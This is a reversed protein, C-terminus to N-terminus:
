EKPRPRMDGIYCVTEEFENVFSDVIQAEWQEKGVIQYKFTMDPYIRLRCTFSMSAMGKYPPTTFSFYEPLKGKGSKFELKDYNSQSKVHSEEVKTAESYKEVTLNSLASFAHKFSFREVVDEEKVSFFLINNEFDEIFELMSIQSMKKNNNLELYTYQGTKLMTLTAKHESWLPKDPVGLDFIATAELNSSNVFLATDKNTHHHYYNLFDALSTTSFHARFRLPAPLFREISTLNQNDPLIIAPLEKDLIVQSAEQAAALDAIAQVTSADM